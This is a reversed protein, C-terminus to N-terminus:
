LLHSSSSKPAIQDLSLINLLILVARYERKPDLTDLMWQWTVVVEKCKSFRILHQHM